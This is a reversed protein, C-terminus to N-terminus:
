AINDHLPKITLLLAVFAQFRPVDPLYSSEVIGERIKTWEATNHDGPRTAEFQDLIAKLGHITADPGPM